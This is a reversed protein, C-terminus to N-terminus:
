SSISHPTTPNSHPLSVIRGEENNWCCSCNKFHKFWNIYIQQQYSNGSVSRTTFNALCLVIDFNIALWNIYRKKSAPQIDLRQRPQVLTKRGRWVCRRSSLLPLPPSLLVFSGMPSRKAQGPETVLLRHYSPPLPPRKRFRLGLYSRSEIVLLSGVFWTAGSAFWSLLPVLNM